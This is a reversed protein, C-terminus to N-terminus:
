VYAGCWQLVNCTWSSVFTQAPRVNQEGEEKAKKARAAGDTLM